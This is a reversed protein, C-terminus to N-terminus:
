GYAKELGGPPVEKGGFASGTTGAALRERMKAYLTDELPVYGTSAVISPNSLYFEAFAKVEPRELSKKKIYIFLPRSLPRYEATRITEESPEVPKNTDPSVIPVVKLKDRNEYYYAYGFYGLANVDGSVGQVLVNDDESATYDGRSAGSKGMIAETFYDFTGSATGAGYLNLPRDPWEPRVQNWRTIKGQADPEWMKKLDEITLSQVWDNAKNVVVSLGDFAVALEVFEVGSKACAEIEETKIPRSANSMDTEANCFKKFGGGTGSVGVTVKVNRNQEGFAEAMAETVPFVTSSGDALITGSLGGGGGSQDTASKACGAGLIFIAAMMAALRVLRARACIKRNM